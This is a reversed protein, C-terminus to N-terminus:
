GTTSYVRPGVAALAGHMVHAFRNQIARRILSGNVSLMLQAPSAATAVQASLVGQIMATLLAAPPGKGAVDGLVFGFHANPLSFYDFFDGGISRCPVSAAAVDFH